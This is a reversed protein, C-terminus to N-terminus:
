PAVLARAAKMSSIMGAVDEYPTEMVVPRKLMEPYNIFAKLGRTGIKGKGINEHRDLNGGLSGKSDNLHVVRLRDFGLTSDFLDMTQAVAASSGLDFGAAYGHCTDFCVGVRKRDEVKDLIGALDDFSSGVSNKQGAMNELLVVAKGTSQALAFDVAGAVNRIGKAKGAGLHSGLHTVLFDIGLEDCRKVEAALSARSVKVTSPVHSALNPLYPMHDVVSRTGEERRRRRFADAVESAIPRYAWQNPNRTFIQFTTCGAEKARDFALELSGSISVHLGIQPEGSM